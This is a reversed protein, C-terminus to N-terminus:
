RRLDDPASAVYCFAILLSALVLLRLTWCVVVHRRDAALERGSQFLPPLIPTGCEPCIGSVNGTLNYKCVHCQGRLLRNRRKNGGILLLALAGCPVPSLGAYWSTTSFSPSTLQRAAYVALGMTVLTAIWKTAERTICLANGALM